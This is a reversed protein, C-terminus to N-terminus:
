IRFQRQYQSPTIGYSQKFKRCLHSSDSFGALQACQTIDQGKQLQEKALNIRCNIIYQHPTLGFSQKFLRIFHFQSLNAENSIQEITLSENLHAHIFTKARLLLTDAHKIVRQKNCAFGKLELLREVITYLVADYEISQTHHGQVLSFMQYLQARLKADNYLTDAFRLQNPHIAGLTKIMTQMKQPEIYLMQYKLLSDNGAHGDHIEEPNFLIINGAQSKYFSGACFFDQRGNLTLGLCYEEHAHKNYAFNKMQASLATIGSLNPNQIFRFQENTRM